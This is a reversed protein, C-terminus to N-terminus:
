PSQKAESAIVVARQRDSERARIHWDSPARWRSRLLWCSRWGPGNNSQSRRMVMATLTGTIAVTIKEKVLAVPFYLAVFMVLTMLLLPIPSKSSSALARREVDLRPV